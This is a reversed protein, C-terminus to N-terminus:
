SEKIYVPFRGEVIWRFAHELAQKAPVESLRANGWKGDLQARVYIAAAHRLIYECFDSLTEPYKEEPPM